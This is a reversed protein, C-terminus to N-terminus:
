NVEFRNGRTTVALITNANIKRYERDHRSWVTIYKPIHHTTDKGGRLHKKVGLRCNLTRISGDKKVFKVGMFGRSKRIENVAEANTVRM